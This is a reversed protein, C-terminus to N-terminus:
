GKEAAEEREEVEVLLVVRFLHVLHIRGALLVHL